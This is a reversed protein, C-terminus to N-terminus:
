TLIRDPIRDKVVFQHWLAACIHLTTLGVLAWSCYQHAYSVWIRLVDDEPPTVLMPFTFLGFVDMPADISVYPSMHAWVIYGTIPMVLLLGYLTWHVGDAM